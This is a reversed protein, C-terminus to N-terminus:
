SAPATPAAPDCHAAVWVPLQTARTTVRDLLKHLRALRADIRAVIKTHGASVATARRDTLTAIRENIRTEANALKDSIESQHNCIYEARPGALGTTGATPSAASAGAGIALAGVLAAGCTSILIKKTINM